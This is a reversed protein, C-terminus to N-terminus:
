RVNVVRGRTAIKVNEEAKTHQTSTEQTDAM